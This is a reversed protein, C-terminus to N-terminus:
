RLLVAILLANVTSTVTEVVPISFSNTNSIQTITCCRYQHPGQLPMVQRIAQRNETAHTLTRTFHSVLEFSVRNIPIEDFCMVHTPLPVVSSCYRYGYRHCPITVYRFRKLRLTM